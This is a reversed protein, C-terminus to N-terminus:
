FTGPYASANGVVFKVVAINTAAIASGDSAGLALQLNGINDSPGAKFDIFLYADNGIRYKAYNNGGNAIPAGHLSDADSPYIYETGGASVEIIGQLEDGPIYGDGAGSSSESDGYVRLGADFDKMPLHMHLITSQFSATDIASGTLSDVRLIAWVNKAFDDKADTMTKSAPDTVVYAEWPSSLRNGLPGGSLM